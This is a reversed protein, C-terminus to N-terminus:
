ISDEVLEEPSVEYEVMDSLYMNMIRLESLIQELVEVGSSSQAQSVETPNGEIGRQAGTTEDIRREQTVRAM